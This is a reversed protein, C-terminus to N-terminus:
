VKPDAVGGQTPPPFSQSYWILDSYNLGFVYPGFVPPCQPGSKQSPAYNVRFYADVYPIRGFKTM